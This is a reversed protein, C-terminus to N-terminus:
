RYFGGRSLKSKARSYEAFAAMVQICARQEASGLKGIEYFLDALALLDRAELCGPDIKRLASLLDPADAGEAAALRELGLILAEGIRDVHASQDIALAAQRAFLSLLEMDQLGFSAAQIKDLVEMVGIVREGSLLPAALISRPVYGTGKAFDQAFRPDQEVNSVALPQGTMAVYGAIGKDLPFSKGIIDSNGQGIAVKFELVGREEDVLAISAAAAGFIRAAAEVISHLLADSTRPLVARGSAQLSSVLREVQDALRREETQGESHSIEETM